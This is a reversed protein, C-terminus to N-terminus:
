QEPVFPVPDPIEPTAMAWTHAQGGGAGRWVGLEGPLLALDVAAASITAAAASLNLGMVYVAGDGFTVELGAGGAGPDLAVVTAAPDDTREPLIVTLFGAGADMTAAAILRVHQKRGGDNQHDELTQGYTAAGVTPVVAAVARANTRAWVGGLDTATFTTNPTDGGALGNLQWTYERSAASTMRDALVVFRGDVRVVRRALEADAYKTSAILTTFDPDDDWTHLFADCNPQTEVLSTWCALTRLSTFM